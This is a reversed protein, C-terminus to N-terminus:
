WRVPRVRVRPKIHPMALAAVLVRTLVQTRSTPLHSLAASLPRTPNHRISIRGHRRPFAPPPRCRRHAPTTSPCPGRTFTGGVPLSLDSDTAHKIYGPEPNELCDGLTRLHERHLCGVEAVEVHALMPETFSPVACYPFDKDLVSLMESHEVDNLLGLEETSRLVYDVAARDMNM